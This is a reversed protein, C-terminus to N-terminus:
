AHRTRMVLAAMAAVLFYVAYAAIYAITVSEISGWGRVAVVSLGVWLAMQVVEGLLYIKTAGKAVAAFVIVYAAVRFADGILQFGMLPSLVVFEESFLLRLIMSRAVFVALGFVAFAIVTAGLTRLVAKTITDVGKLHSITPMYRALLVVNFFGLWATSLRILGQWLGAQEYGMADTVQSRIITEALPFSIASAVLMLSFQGLKIADTKGLKWPILRMVRMRVLFVLGTVGTCSISLFLALGAGPIGLYRILLYAAPMLLLYAPVAIALFLDSRGLGNAVGTALVGISALLQLGAAIPVVWWYAPTAFLWESLPRAFAISIVFILASFLAGYMTAAGLFRTLAVPKNRYEAVYKAIGGSIGGGALSGFATSLSMANGLLGLGAAGLTVAILKIIVLGGLMRLGHSAAIAVSAGLNTALVRKAITQLPIM